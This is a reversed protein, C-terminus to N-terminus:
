HLLGWTPIHRSFKFFCVFLCFLLYALTTPTSHAYPLHHPSPLPLHHPAQLWKLPHLPPGKCLKSCLPKRIQTLMSCSRWLSPPSFQDYEPHIKFSSRLPNGSANSIFHSLFLLLPTHHLPFVTHPFCPTPTPSERAGPLFLLGVKLTWIEGPVRQGTLWFSLQCKSQIEENGLDTWRAHIVLLRGWHTSGM